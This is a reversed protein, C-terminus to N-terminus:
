AAEETAPLGIIKRKLLDSVLTAATKEPDDGPIIEAPGERAPPAFIRRVATPSGKLGCQNLDLELSDKTWILPEYRMARLLGRLSAYRIENAEKVITLLAPLKTKVIERGGEMLRQAQIERKAFDIWDIKLVYTLQSLGLRTAIGPGVQATDGDIAQKGCFVIGVEEEEGVRKIAQSLIYSTSLTDSGAFARDTLLIGVDVGLSVVKRIAEKAQPPGMSIATVKGGFRDKLRLAEEVAHMDYPNVISPVGERRLTNTVPDIRVETTDPVQKICVVAHM